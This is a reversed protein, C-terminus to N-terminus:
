VNLEEHVPEPPVDLGGHPRSGIWYKRILRSSLAVIPVAVLAGVIGGFALGTFIALIITVPNLHLSQGLIKPSIYHAELQNAVTFVVIVWVVKVWGFQIALLIAPTIAIITGLNPIINLVGALFGVTAAIPEGIITLGITVMVGITLAVFLQGRIYGGVSVSVDDALSAALTRWSAPLLNLVAQGIGQFYLLMYTGVVFIVFVELVSSLVGFTRSLFNVGQGQLVKLITDVLNTLGEQVAKTGQAIVGKLEPRQKLADLYDTLSTELSSILKPLQRSFELLQSVLTGLLVSALVLFVIVFILVLTVGLVRPVRRKELATVFPNGLYAFLYALLGLRLVNEVRGLVRYLAYAIVLYIAIRVYPNRWVYVFANM